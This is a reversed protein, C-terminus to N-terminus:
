RRVSLHVHSDERLVWDGSDAALLALKGLKAPDVDSTTVDAARGEYHLSSPGHESREDWAETVRLSLGPWQRRVREDLRHLASRLRPTMMRDAGTHEEDKFVIDPDDDRVLREFAASGRAVRAEIAGVTASESAEPRHENPRFSETTERSLSPAQGLDGCGVVLLPFALLLKSASRRM